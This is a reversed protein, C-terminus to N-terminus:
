KRPRRIQDRVDPIVDDLAHLVVSGPLLDRVPGEDSYDVGHSITDLLEDKLDLGFSGVCTFGAVRGLEYGVFSNRLEVLGDDDSVM